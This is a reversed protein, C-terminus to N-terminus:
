VDDRRSFMQKLLKRSHEEMHPEKKKHLRIHMESSIDLEKAMEKATIINDTKVAHAFMYGLDEIVPGYKNYIDSSTIEKNPNDLIDGFDDKLPLTESAKCLKWDGALTKDDPNFKGKQEARTIRTNWDFQQNM